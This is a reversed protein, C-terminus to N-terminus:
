YYRQTQTEEIAKKIEELRPELYRAIARGPPFAVLTELTNRTDDLAKLFQVKEYLAKEVDGFINETFTMRTRRGQTKLDPNFLLRDFGQLSKPKNPIANKEKGISIAVLEFM